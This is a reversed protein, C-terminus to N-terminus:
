QWPHWVQCKRLLNKRLPCSLKEPDIEHGWSSYLLFYIEVDSFIAPNQSEIKLKWLRKYSFLLGIKLLFWNKSIHGVVWLLCSSNPYIGIIPRTRGLFQGWFHGDQRVVIQQSLVPFIPNKVSRQCLIFFDFKKLIVFFGGLSVSFRPFSSKAPYLRIRLMENTKLPLQSLESFISYKWKNEYLLSQFNFISLWFGAM